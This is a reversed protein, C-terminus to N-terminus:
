VIILVRFVRVFQLVNLVSAVVIYFKETHSPELGWGREGKRGASKRKKRHHSRSWM